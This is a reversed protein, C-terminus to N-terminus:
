KGEFLECLADSRKDLLSIYLFLTSGRARGVSDASEPFPNFPNSQCLGSKLRNTSRIIPACGNLGNGSDASLM